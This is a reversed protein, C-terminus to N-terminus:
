ARPRRGARTQPGALDPFLKATKGDCLAHLSIEIGELFEQIVIKAGAAGFAKGVLIEDIAKNAEAENTCILVGKGLALGDAKVACKGGLSAPLHRQRRRARTFTGARATPIGYKEMFKQSFVKSSEFQAAKQNPGWIRLGNKQFLDM